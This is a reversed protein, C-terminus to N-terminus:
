PNTPNDEDGNIGFLNGSDIQEAIKQYSITGRGDAWADIARILAMNTDHMVSFYTALGNTLIDLNKTGRADSSSRKRGFYMSNYYTYSSCSNFFYIQYRDRAPAFRFGETREISELDLHGGLGSHGDYMMISGNELADKFFYHFAQSQEDIGSPGFFVRVEVTAKSDAKTFSEVHPMVRPRSGGHGQIVRLVEADTLKRSSFGIGQLGQKIDRFNEANVDQSRTPDRDNSPDDMGMLMHVTIKGDADVLRQYEPYTRTSNAARRVRGRVVDYDKGAVLKCGPNSPNWFYWFDGESQYHHDTCPNHDGVMAAEYVTDPNSPLVVSYETEPGNQLVIKGSYSYSVKWARGERVISLRTIEHHGSPVAKVEAEGMPGFLHVLQQEIQERAADQSPQSSGGMLVRHRFSLTAETSDSGVYLRRERVPPQAWVSSAAVASIVCGMGLMSRFLM